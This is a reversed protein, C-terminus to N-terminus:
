GDSEGGPGEELAKAAAQQRRYEALKREREEEALRDKEAEDEIDNILLAVMRKTVSISKGMAGLTIGTHLDDEGDEIEEVPAFRLEDLIQDLRKTLEEPTYM